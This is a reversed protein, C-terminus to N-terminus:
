PESARIQATARDWAARSTQSGPADAYERASVDVFARLAAVRHSTSTAEVGLVDCVAWLAQRRALRLKLIAENRDDDTLTNAATTLSAAALQQSRPADAARAPEIAGRAAYYLRLLEERDPTGHLRMAQMLLHAHQASMRAAAAAVSAYCIAACAIDRLSPAPDDTMTESVGRRHTDRTDNAADRGEAALRLATTPAREVPACCGPVACTRRDGDLPELWPWARVDYCTGCMGCRAVLTGTLM